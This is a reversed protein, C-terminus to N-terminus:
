QNNRLWDYFSTARDHNEALWIQIHPDFFRFASHLFIDTYSFGALAKFFPIYLDSWVGERKGFAGRNIMSKIAEESLEIIRQVEEKKGPSGSLHDAIIGFATESRKSNPELLLFYYLPPLSHDMKGLEYMLVGLLYHSGAHNPSLSLANELAQQAEGHNGIKYLCLGLNYYLLYHGGLREIGDRLLEISEVTRGLYDLCSSKMTYVGLLFDVDKDIVRDLHEMAKAYENVAIYGSAICYNAVPSDPELEVAEKLITIARDYRGNEYYNMGLQLLSDIKNYSQVILPAPLLLLLFIAWVSILKFREM